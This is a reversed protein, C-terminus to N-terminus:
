GDREVFVKLDGVWREFCGKLFGGYLYRVVYALVGRQAEWTRVEIWGREEGDLEQIEHVREAYLFWSSVAGKFGSGYDSSWVIRAIRGGVESGADPSPPQFDSIVLHVQTTRGPNKPDMLVHFTAKTGPNLIPSLNKKKNKNNLNDNNGYENSEDPHSSSSSAAAAADGISPDSRPQERITVHPIFSNWESWTSTDILTNWIRSIPAKIRTSSSIHLIVKSSPITPAPLSSLDRKSM